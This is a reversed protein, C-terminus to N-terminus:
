LTTTVLLHLLVYFVHKLCIYTMIRFQLNTVGTGLISDRTSGSNQSGEQVELWVSCLSPVVWDMDQTITEQPQQSWVGYVLHSLVISVYQRMIRSARLDTYPCPPNGRLTTFPCGKWEERKAEPLGQHETAQLYFKRQTKM